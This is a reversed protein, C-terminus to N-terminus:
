PIVQVQLEQIRELEQHHGLGLGQLATVRAARWHVWETNSDIAADLDSLAEEYRKLGVLAVGRNAQLISSGPYQRLGLDATEVAQEFDQNRTLQYVLHNYEYWEQPRASEYAKWHAKSESTQGLQRESWAREAYGQYLNPNLELARDVTDLANQYKNQSNQIEALHFYFREDNPDLAIAKQLNSEALKHQGRADYALGRLFYRMASDAPLALYAEPESDYYSHSCVEREDKSFLQGLYSSEPGSPTSKAETLPEVVTPSPSGNVSLGKPDTRHLYLSGVAVGSLIALFFGLDKRM